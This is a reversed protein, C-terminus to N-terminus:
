WEFIEEFIQEGWGYVRLYLCVFVSVSVYLCIYPCVYASLPLRITNYKSINISFRFDPKRNQFRFWTKMKLFRNEFKNTKIMKGLSLQMVILLFEQFFQNM